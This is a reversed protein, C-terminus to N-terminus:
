PLRQSLRALLAQRRPARGGEEKRERRAPPLRGRPGAGSEEHRRPRLVYLPPAPHQWAGTAEPPDPLASGAEPRPELVRRAAHGGEAPMRDDDAAVNWRGGGRQNLREVRELGAGLRDESGGAV